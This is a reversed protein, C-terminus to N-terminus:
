GWGHFRSASRAVSSCKKSQAEDHGSQPYSSQPAYAHVGHDHSHDNDCDYCDDDGDGDGLPLLLLPPGPDVVRLLLLLLPASWSVAGHDDRPSYPKRKPKRLYIGKPVLVSHYRLTGVM